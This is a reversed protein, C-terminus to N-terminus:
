LKVNNMMSCFDLDSAGRSTFITKINVNSLLLDSYGIGYSAMNEKLQQLSVEDYTVIYINKGVIRKDIIEKFIPKFYDSDTISLSHGYIIINSAQKFNSFFSEVYSNEVEKIIYRLRDDSSVLENISKVNSDVGLKIEAGSIIKKLCGHLYLIHHADLKTKEFPDTYNFSVISSSSIKSLLKYACSDKKTTYIDNNLLLYECISNRCLIWFYNLEEVKEKSVTLMCERLYGELNYWYGNTMMEFVYSIGNLSNLKNNKTRYWDSYSTKWGLDLDFGNGLIILTKDM